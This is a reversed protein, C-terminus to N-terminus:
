PAPAPAGEGGDPLGCRPSPDVVVPCQPSRAGNIAGTITRPQAGFCDQSERYRRQLAACEEADGPALAQAAASSSRSASLPTAVSGGQRANAAAASGAGAAAASAIAAARGAAERRTAEDPESGTEVKQAVKKYKEPVVDSVNTVGREDVWRYIEVAGAMSWLCVAFLAAVIWPAPKM